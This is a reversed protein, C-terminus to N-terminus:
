PPSSAAASPKSGPPGAPPQRFSSSGAIVHSFHAAGIICALAVIVFFRASEAFPLVGVLMAILWGAFIGRVALDFLFSNGLV